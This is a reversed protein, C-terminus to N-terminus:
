GAIVHYNNSNGPDWGRRTACFSKGKKEAKKPGRKKERRRERGSGARHRAIHPRRGHAPRASGGGHGRWALPAAGGHALQFPVEGLQQQEFFLADPFQLPAQSLLVFLNLLEAATQVFAVRHQRGGARVDPGAGRPRLADRGLRLGVAREVVEALGEVLEGLGLPLAPTRSGEPGPSFKPERPRQRGSGMGRKGDARLRAGRGRPPKRPPLPSPEPQADRRPPFFPFRSGVADGPVHPFTAPPARGKRRRGSCGRGRGWAALAREARGPCRAGRRRASRM